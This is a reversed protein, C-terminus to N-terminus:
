IFFYDLFDLYFTGLCAPKLSGAFNTRNVYFKSMDAQTLGM